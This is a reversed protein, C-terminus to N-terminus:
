IWGSFSSPAPSSLAQVSVIAVKPRLGVVGTFFNPLIILPLIISIGLLAWTIMKGM